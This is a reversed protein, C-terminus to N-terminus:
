WKCLAPKDLRDVRNFGFIKQEIWNLPKVSKAQDKVHKYNSVEYNMRDSLRYFQIYYNQHNEKFWFLKWDLLMPNIIMWGAIYM